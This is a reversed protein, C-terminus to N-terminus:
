KRVVFSTIKIGTVDDATYTFDAVLAIHGDEYNVTGYGGEAKIGTVYFKGGLVEKEPSLESIHQFVYSEISTLKGTPQTPEPTATNSLGGYLFAYFFLAAAAFLIVLIIVSSKKM